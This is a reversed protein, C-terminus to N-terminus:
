SLSSSLPQLYLPTVGDLFFPSLYGVGTSFERVANIAVLTPTFVYDSFYGLILQGENGHGFSFVLGSEATKKSIHIFFIMQRWFHPAMASQMEISVILFTSCLDKKLSFVVLWEVFNSSFIGGAGVFFFNLASRLLSHGLQNGIGTKYLGNASVSVISM